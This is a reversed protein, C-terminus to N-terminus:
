QQVLPLVFEHDPQRRLQEAAGADAIGKTAGPAAASPIGAPALALAAAAVALVDTLVIAPAALALVLPPARPERHDKQGAVIPVREVLARRLRELAIGPM